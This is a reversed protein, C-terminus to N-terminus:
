REVEDQWRVTFALGQAPHLLLACLLAIATWVGVRRWGPADVASLIAYRRM